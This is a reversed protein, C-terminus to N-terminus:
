NGSTTKHNYQSMLLQIQHLMLNQQAQDQANVAVLYDNTTATGNELQSKTTGKISERLAVIIQDTDILEQIKSVEANQQQMSLTTNFIFVDKQIDLGNQNLALMKKDNKYTYFGSFNWNLRLGGIYYADLDNSLLNLAPRGLGGQFFLSFQPLLKANILKGQIDFTKKQLDFLKLEPRNITYSLIQQSPKEFTTKEDISQNIFLSLMSAFGKRNSKLEITRQNAKLLEAKLNDASSKLAIGNTIAIETKDIGIQIDKKHIENQQIQEDILLIGFFLNNIREKLKYLEVEIKQEDIIANTNIQEKHDKITFLDTISQSVEGYLRYQDKSLPEINIGPLSIPLQTVDSQYTAQGAINFQPLFRKDANNISYEKSKEILAYQRVLPYNQKAMSYCNEITLNQIDQSYSLSTVFCLYLLTLIKKKKYM